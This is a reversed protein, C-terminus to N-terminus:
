KKGPFFYSILLMMTGITIASDALNFTAFHWFGLHFDIFDNVYGLHIRDWFNGLAGGLLLSLACAQFYKKQPLRVLWVLLMLCAATTLVVFFWRQWGGATALFGFSAGTNTSLTINLFSTLQYFEGIYFHHVILSKSWQDAVFILISLWLWRLSHNKQYLFNLM